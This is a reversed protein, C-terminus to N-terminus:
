LRETMGYAKNSGSSSRFSTVEAISVWLLEGRRSPLDLSGHTRNLRLLDHLAFVRSELTWCNLLKQASRCIEKLNNLGLLDGARLATSSVSRLKADSDLPSASLLLSYPLRCLCRWLPRKCSPCVARSGFAFM